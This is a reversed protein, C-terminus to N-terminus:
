TIKLPKPPKQAPSQSASRIVQYQNQIFGFEFTTTNKHALHVDAALPGFLPKGSGLLVPIVTITMDDILGAALFSQITLGGDVYIKKAGLETLRAVLVEPTENSVSVSPPLSSPLSIGRRSLVVVPTSGYPWSDFSLVQEFTNRGMVLADVDSMFKSYGCDEGPPVSKNAENLWDISGNSRAIFGDLSTAIFVSCNATM